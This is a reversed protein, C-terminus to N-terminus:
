LPYLCPFLTIKIISQFLGHPEWLSGLLLLSLRRLVNCRDMGLSPLGPLFFLLCPASKFPSLSTANSMVVSQGHTPSVYPFDHALPYVLTLTPNTCIHDSFVSSSMIPRQFLLLAKFSCSGVLTKLQSAYPMEPLWLGYGQRYLLSCCTADSVCALCTPNGTSRAHQKM